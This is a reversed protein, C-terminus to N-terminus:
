NGKTSLMGCDDVCIMPLADVLLVLSLSLLEIIKFLDAYLLVESIIVKITELVLSALIEKFLSM